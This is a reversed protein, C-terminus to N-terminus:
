KALSKASTGSQIQYNVSSMEIVIDTTFVLESFNQKNTKTRCHWSQSRLKIRFATWSGWGKIWICLCKKFPSKEVRPVNSGCISWSNYCLARLQVFLFIGSNLTKESFIQIPLHCQEVESFQKKSQSLQFYSEGEAVQSM